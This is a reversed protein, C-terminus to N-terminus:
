DSFATTVLIYLAHVECVTGAIFSLLFCLLMLKRRELWFVSLGLPIGAVGALVLGTQLTGTWGLLEHNHTLTGSTGPFMFARLMNLLIDMVTGSAFFLYFLVVHALVWGVILSVGAM